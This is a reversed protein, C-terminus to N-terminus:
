QIDDPGFEDSWVWKVPGHRFYTITATNAQLACWRAAQMAGHIHRTAEWGPRAGSLYTLAAGGSRWNPVHTVLINAQTGQRTGTVSDFAAEFNATRGFSRALNLGATGLITGYAATTVTDTTTGHLYQSAVFTVRPFYDAGIGLSSALSAPSVVRAVTSYNYYGTGIQLQVNYQAGAYQTRIVRYGAMAIATTMSDITQGGRPVKASTYDDTPPLVHRTVNQRGAFSVLRATAGRLLGYVSQNGSFANRAAAVGFIDSYVKGTISAASTDAAVGGAGANTNIGYHNHVTVKGFGSKGIVAWENAFRSLGNADPVHLSDTELGVTYKIGNVNLSDLGALYDNVQATSAVGAFRKGGDDIDLALKAAGDKFLTPALRMAMGVAVTASLAPPFNSITNMSTSPELSVCGYGVTTAGLAERSALIPPNYFWAFLTDNPSAAGGVGDPDARTMSYFDLWAVPTVYTGETGASRKFGYGAWPFSYGAQTSAFGGTVTAGIPASDTGLSCNAADEFTDAKNGVSVYFVPVRPRNVNKTIQVIPTSNPNETSGFARGNVVIMLAFDYKPDTAGPTVSDRLEALSYSPAGLVNMNHDVFHIKVGQKKAKALLAFFPGLAASRSNSALALSTSDSLVLINAEAKPALTLAGLLLGVALSVWAILRRLAPSV